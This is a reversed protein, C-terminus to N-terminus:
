LDIEMDTSVVDTASLKDVVKSLIKRIVHATPVNPYFERLKNFDGSRLFLTHKTLDEHSKQM